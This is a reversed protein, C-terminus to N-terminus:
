HLLRAHGVVINYFVDRQSIKAALFQINGFGFHRPQHGQTFFEALCFGQFACADRARKVHGDLRRNQDFCKDRQTRIHAPCRAVDKGCLVMCGSGDSGTARRNKGDFALRQLLMPIILIADEQKFFAGAVQDQIITAVGGKVDQQARASFGTFCIQQFIRCGFFFGCNIRLDFFTHGRLRAPEGCLTVCDFTDRFFSCGAYVTKVLQKILALQRKGCDVHVVANGLRFEVVFVTTFFRKYVTNAAGCVSHHSAFGGDNQTIAINAFARGCRKATCTRPYFDGFNVRNTGQLGGHVAKLNYGQFLDDCGGVNKDGRGAVFIHDTDLMHTFHLIHRDDTVDAMEIVFNLYCGQLVQFPCVDLILDIHDLHWRAVAYDQQGLAAQQVKAVGCAM